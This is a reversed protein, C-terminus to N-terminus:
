RLHPCFNAVDRATVRRVGGDDLWCVPAERIVIALRPDTGAQLPDDLVAVSSVPVTQRHGIDAFIILELVTQCSKYSTM